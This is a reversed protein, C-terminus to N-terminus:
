SLRFFLQHCVRKLFIESILAFRLNSFFSLLLDSNSITIPKTACFGSFFEFKRLFRLNSYIEANTARVHERNGSDKQSLIYGIATHSADTTLMFTDNMKPHALIPASTLKQKLVRFATECEETWIFEEDKKLLKTIPATISSYSKIFRRYYNCMGLFSRIEKVTKPTPLTDIVKTKDPDVQIGDKSIMHGLFKVQKAAFKCKTPKLTLGASRLREFLQQLHVLHEDFNKSFVCIDDVYVLMNKWHLGRLVQSMVMQFSVCSNRLGMGLRKWEYVGKQTIFAAKHKTEPDMQLQWYGSHLDFTSFIKSQAEAVTDFVCELRPLPFSLPKTIKNLKRYDVCFRFKGDKKKVLVVPSHYESNSEEIIDNDLLEQVQRDIEKQLHPPQRYFPMRVPSANPDTEIRHAFRNVTKGLESISNAFIDRHDDLFDRLKQKQQDNLDSQSLDFNIPSRTKNIQPSKYSRTANTQSERPGKFPHIQSPDIVDVTAVITNNEIVIEKDSPNCIKMIGRQNKVSSITKAGLLSRNELSEWPELLVVQQRKLRSIKVPIITEKNPPIVVKQATRAFHFKEQIPFTVNSEAIKITKQGLHLSVNHQEMFDLGLIVAQNLGKVIHVHTWFIKNEIDIPVKIKGVIPLHNGSVGRVVDYDPSLLPEKSLESKQFFGLSLLSIQAGTDILAKTKKLGIHVDVTNRPQLTTTLGLM